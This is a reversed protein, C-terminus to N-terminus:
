KYRDERLNNLEALEPELLMRLAVTLASVARFLEVLVVLYLGKVLIEAKYVLLLAVLLPELV